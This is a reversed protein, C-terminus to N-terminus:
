YRVRIGREVRRRSNEDCTNYGRSEIITNEGDKEVTVEACYTDPLFNLTFTSISGGGMNEIIQRNCEISSTTTTSFAKGKVDWYLACESGSDAAYFAFHSDRGYSSLMLEKIAINFISIGLSLLLSAVLSAMLLTFGGKHKTSKHKTGKM